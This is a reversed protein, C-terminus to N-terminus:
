PETLTTISYEDIIFRTRAYYYPSGFPVAYPLDYEGIVEWYELEINYLGEPAQKSPIFPELYYGFYQQDWEVTLSDGPELVHFLVVRPYAEWPDILLLLQGTEGETIWPIVPRAVGIVFGAAANGVNTYTIEVTEGIAYHLKNTRIRIEPNLLDEYPETIEQEGTTIGVAAIMSLLMMMAVILIKKKM